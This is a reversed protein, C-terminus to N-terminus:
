IIRWSVIGMNDFLVVDQIRPDNTYSKYPKWPEILLGGRLFMNSFDVTYTNVSNELM